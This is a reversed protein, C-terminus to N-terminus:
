FVRDTVPGARPRPISPSINLSASSGAAFDIRVTSYEAAADELSPSALSCTHPAYFLTLL